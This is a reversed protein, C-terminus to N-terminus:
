CGSRRGAQNTGVIGLGIGAVDAEESPFPACALANPFDLFVYAVDAGLHVPGVQLVQGGYLNHGTAQVVADAQVLPRLGALHGHALPPHINKSNRGEFVLREQLQRAALLAQCEQCAGKDLVRLQQNQVLGQVPQVGIVASADLLNDFGEATPVVFREDHDSM